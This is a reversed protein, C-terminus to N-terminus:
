ERELERPARLVSREGAKALTEAAREQCAAQPARTRHRRDRAAEALMQRRERGVRDRREVQRGYPHPQQRLEVQKRDAEDHERRDRDGSKEEPPLPRVFLLLEFGAPL